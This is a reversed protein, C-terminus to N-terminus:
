RVVTVPVPSRRVVLEAVSGLLVRTLGKRGHSGVVVHDVDHSEAYEVLTEAPPGVESCTEVTRDHQEAVAAAEALVEEASETAVEYAEESYYGGSYPDVYVWEQPDTVHVVHIEADPYTSLAHRLAATAQPSEDFAVLVRELSEAM